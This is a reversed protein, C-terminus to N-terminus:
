SAGIYSNYNAGHDRILKKQKTELQSLLNQIANLHNAQAYFKQEKGGYMQQVNVISYVKPELWGIGIGYALIDVVFQGDSFDDVSNELTYELTETDDDLKLSSFIKRVQPKAIASHLWEKIFEDNLEDESKVLYKYDEIKSLFRSKIQKYTSTM